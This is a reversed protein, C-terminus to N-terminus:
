EPKCTNSTSCSNCIGPCLSAHDMADQSTYCSLSNKKLGLITKELDTGVSKYVTIGLSSFINLAMPKMDFVAVADFGNKKFGEMLNETKSAIDDVSVWHYDAADTDFVCICPSSNFAGAIQYKKDQNNVVPIAIKM